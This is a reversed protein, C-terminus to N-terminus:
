GEGDDDQGTPVTLPRGALAQAPWARSTAFLLAGGAPRLDSLQELEFRLRDCVRPEPLVLPDTVQWVAHLLRRVRLHLGVDAGQPPPATGLRGLAIATRRDDGQFCPASAIFRLDELWRRTGSAPFSDRLRAVAGAPEDLALEHYLRYRPEAEYHRILQEHVDFWKTGDASRHHLRLLLLARVFPDGVFHGEVTPMGERALRASLERVGSSGFDDPLQVHALAAASDHDHAAALVTLEGLRDPPVLHRLLEAYLPPGQQPPADEDGPEPETPAILLRSLSGAEGPHERAAQAVLVIGLPNGGTLRHVAHPLRPPVDVGECVAGVIHLTDDPSLPPLPVLLVATDQPGSDRAVDALQRRVAGRLLPLETGRVTAIVAVQHRSGAARDRLLADLLAPGPGTRANDLLVVPRGLRTLRAGLGAYGDALDTLLARVLWREAHERSTGGARFNGSLLMLGRKANGGANPYTRYWASPRQDKRSLADESVAELTAEVVAALYPGQGVSAAAVKAAVKTAWRGATSFRSHPENLLLIRTLEARIRESDPAGGWSGARVAVLGATLRPFTLQGAARVPETLQEALVLAAQWLPSWSEPSDTHPAAAFQPDECDIRALPTRKRSEGRRTRETYAACIEDLVATKGLGRGGSLVLVPPGQPHEPAAPVHEYPRLGILRPLLGPPEADFLAGRGHLQGHM